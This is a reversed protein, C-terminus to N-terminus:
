LKPLHAVCVFLRSGYFSPYTDNLGVLWHFDQACTLSHSFSGARSLLSFVSYFKQLKGFSFRIHRTGWQLNVKDDINLIIVMLLPHTSVPQLSHVRPYLREGLSQRHYPLSDGDEGDASSNSGSFHFPRADASLQRRGERDRKYRYSTARRIRQVIGILIVCAHCKPFNSGRAIM